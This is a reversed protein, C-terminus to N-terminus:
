ATCCRCITAWLTPFLGSLLPYLLRSLVCMRSTPVELDRLLRLYASGCIDLHFPLPPFVQTQNLLDSFDRCMEDGPATRLPQLEPRLGPDHAASCGAVGAGPVLAVRPARGSRGPAEGLGRGQANTLQGGPSVAVSPALGPGGNLKGYPRAGVAALLSSFASRPEQSACRFRGPLNPNQNLLNGGRCGGQSEQTFGDERRLPGAAASPEQRLKLM